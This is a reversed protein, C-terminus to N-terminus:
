TTGSGRTARGGVNKRRRRKPKKEIPKSPFGHSNSTEQKKRTPRLKRGVTEREEERPRPGGKEASIKRSTWSSPFLSNQQNPPPENKMAASKKGGERDQHIGPLLKLVYPYTSFGEGGTENKPRRGGGGRLMLPLFKWEDSGM